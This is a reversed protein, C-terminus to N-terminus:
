MRDIFLHVEGPPYGYELNSLVEPVKNIFNGDIEKEPNISSDTSIDHTVDFIFNKISIYIKFMKESKQFQKQQGAVRLLLISIVILLCTSIADFICFSNEM